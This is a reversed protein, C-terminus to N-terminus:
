LQGSIDGIGLVEEAKELFHLPPFPKLFYDDAGAALCAQIDVTQQRTALVVIRIDAIAPNTKLRRCIELMEERGGSSTISLFILAPHEVWALDLAQQGNEAALVQHEGIELSVQALERVELREDVVLIKSM